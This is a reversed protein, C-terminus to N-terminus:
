KYPGIFKDGNFHIMHHPTDALWVETEWAIDHAFKRYVARDPFATVYVVDASCSETLKNLTRLRLENIPNATTVAEILFLWGKDKSYAVVDPLKDHSLDFFNISRLGEEDKYLKKNETDGVYLVEAGNGFIPLFEEIINRQLLNHKGSSLSLTLGQKITVPTRALERTRSLQVALTPRQSIFSNLHSEWQDTGFSRIVCAADPSLAFGRTGDNTNANPNQASSLIVMAEVPLVLDKRRIDDYSGPSITEGLHTNMFQIIQRTQLARGNGSTNDKAEIWKIGPKIDAVAL